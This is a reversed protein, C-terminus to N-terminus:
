GASASDVPPILQILKDRLRSISVNSKKVWIALPLFEPNVLLAETDPATPIRGSSADIQLDKEYRNLAEKLYVHANFGFFYVLAALQHLDAEAVDTDNNRHRLRNSLNGHSIARAIPGPLHQAMALAKRVMTISQDIDGVRDFLLSFENLVCIHEASGSEFSQLCYELEQQAEAFKNMELLIIARNLRNCTIEQRTRGLERQTAILTEAHMLATQWEGRKINLLVAVDLADVYVNSSTEMVGPVNVWRRKRQKQWETAIQGLMKDYFPVVESAKGQLIEIRCIELESAILNWGTIAGGFKLAKKKAAQSDLLLGLAEDLRHLKRLINAWNDYVVSLDGWITFGTRTKLIQRAMNAAEQFYPLSEEFRITESLADAILLNFRLKQRHGIASIEAIQLYPLIRALLNADLAHNVMHQAFPIVEICNDAEVFYVLARSGIGMAYNRDENKLAFFLERLIIAYSNQVTKINVTFSYESKRAFYALIRERVLEHCSFEVQEYKEIQNSRILGLQCMQELAAEVQPNAAAQVLQTAKSAQVDQRPTYIGRLVDAIGHLLPSLPKGIKRVLTYLLTQQRLATTLLWKEVPQENGLAIMWLLRQAETGVYQLLQDISNRLADELYAMESNQDSLGSFLAPLNGFEKNSELTQLAHNLESLLNTSLLRALRDLLLPHFRSASLVRQALRRQAADSSFFMEALKPHQRLYLKAEAPQLPGLVVKCGNQALAFLPRRCTILVRSRTGCLAQALKALLCEWAADLCTWSQAGAEPVPKLNTEFNDLVLLIAEDQMARVLNSMLRDERTKGKFGDNAPRHIADAPHAQLHRHYVGLEGVLRWHIEALAFDLSLPHAKVQFSLIWEFQGEWLDLAEAALTTKGMGGLGIIQAVPAAAENDLWEAGMRTLEWTRGVFNPQVNLEAVKRLHHQETILNTRQGGESALGTQNEGYLLPTAHDCASFHNQQAGTRMGHRVQALAAAVSHGQALLAQYFGLALERAYEDGVNFRMAVVTPVGGQLLTHATGSFGPHEVLNIDKDLLATIRREGERDFFENWNHPPLIDGSHCASLFMLRPLAVNAEPFMRLLDAGSLLDSAGGSKALELTDRQGHGSWHIIHYGGNERLKALLRSRTVGHALTHLLVERKPHIEEDFLRLIERREQRMGLPSSNRAEAFVFLVRLVDNAEFPLAHMAREPMAHTICIRLQREALTPEALSPRAIEWPIRVLAATFDDGSETAGPLRIQLTRLEQWHWLVNFIDNGLIQKAICVGLEAMTHQHEEPEVYRHLFNHLDFMGHLQSLTRLRFDAYHCAIQEGTQGFLLLEASRSVSDPQIVLTFDHRDHNM